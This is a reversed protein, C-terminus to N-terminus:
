SSEWDSYRVKSGTYAMLQTSLVFVMEKTKTNAKWTPPFPVPLGSINRVVIKRPNLADIIPCSGGPINECIHFTRHPACPSEVVRLVEVGQMFEEVRASHIECASEHHCGLTLVRVCRLLDKKSIPLLVNAVEDDSGFGDAAKKSNAKKAKKAEKKKKNKKANKSKQAEEAKNDNPTKADPKKGSEPTAPGPTSVASSKSPSADPTNITASKKKPTAPQPSPIPNNYKGYSHPKNTLKGRETFCKNAHDIGWKEKLDNVCEECYCPTFSGRFFSDITEEWIAVTHYLVPGVEMYFDKSTRMLRALTTRDQRAYEIIATVIHPIAMLRDAASQPKSSTSSGASPSCGSPSSDAM